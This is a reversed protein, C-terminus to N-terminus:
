MDARTSIFHRSAASSGGVVYTAIVMKPMEFMPVLLAYARLHTFLGAIWFFFRVMHCGLRTPVHKATSGCSTSLARVTSSSWVKVLYNDDGVDALVRWRLSFPPM